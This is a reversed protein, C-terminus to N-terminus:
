IKKFKIHEIIKGFVNSLFVKFPVISYIMYLLFVSREKLTLAKITSAKSTYNLAISPKGVKYAKVAIFLHHTRTVENTYASGYRHIIDKYKELYM